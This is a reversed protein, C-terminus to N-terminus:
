GHSSGDDSASAGRVVVISDGGSSPTRATAMIDSGEVKFVYTHESHTVLVLDEVDVKLQLAVANEIEERTRPM